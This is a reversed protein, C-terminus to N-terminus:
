NWIDYKPTKRMSMSPQVSVRWPSSTAGGCAPTQAGGMYVWMVLVFSRPYCCCRFYIFIFRLLACVTCDDYCVVDATNRWQFIDVQRFCSCKVSVRSKDQLRLNCRVPETDDTYNIKTPLTPARSLHLSAPLLCEAVARSRPTCNRLCRM